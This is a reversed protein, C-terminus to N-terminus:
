GARGTARCRFGHAPSARSHPRSAAGHKAIRWPNHRLFSDFKAAVRPSLLPLGCRYYAEDDAASSSNGGALSLLRDLAQSTVTEAAQILLADAGEEKIELVLLVPLGRRLDVVARDVAIAAIGPHVPAEATAATNKKLNKPLQTMAANRSLFNKTSVSACASATDDCSIGAFTFRRRGFPSHM